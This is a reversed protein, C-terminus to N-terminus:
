PAEPAKHENGPCACQALTMTGTFWRDVFAQAMERAADFTEASGIGVHAHEHKRPDASFVDLDDGAEVATLQWRGPQGTILISLLRKNKDRKRGRSVRAIWQQFPDFELKM